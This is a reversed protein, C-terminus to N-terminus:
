VFNKLFFGCVINNLDKINLQKILTLIEINKVNQSSFPTTPPM